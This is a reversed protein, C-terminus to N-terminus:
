MIVPKTDSTHASRPAWSLSRLPFHIVAISFWTQLPCLRMVLYFETIGEAFWYVYLEKAWNSTNRCCNYCHWSVSFYYPSINAKSYQIKQRISSSVIYIYTEEVKQPAFSPLLLININSIFLYICLCVYIASSQIHWDSDTKHNCIM